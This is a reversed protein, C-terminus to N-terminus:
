LSKVYEVGFRASRARSEDEPRIKPTPFQPAPFFGRRNTPDPARWPENRPLLKGAKMYNYNELIYSVNELRSSIWMLAFVSQDSVVDPHQNVFEYYQNDFLSSTPTSSLGKEKLKRALAARVLEKADGFEALLSNMKSQLDTYTGASRSSVRSDILSEMEVIKKNLRVLQEPLKSIAEEVWSQMSQCRVFRTPPPYFETVFTFPSFEYSSAKDFGRNQGLYTFVHYLDNRTFAPEQEVLGLDGSEPTTVFDCLAPNLFLIAATDSSIGIAPVRLLSNVTLATFYCNPGATPIGFVADANFRENALAEDFHGFVASSISAILILSSFYSKPKFSKM